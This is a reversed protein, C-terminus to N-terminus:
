MCIYPPNHFGPLTMESIFQLFDPVKSGIGPILKSPSIRNQTHIIVKIVMKKTRPVTQFPVELSEYHIVADSECRSFLQIIVIM